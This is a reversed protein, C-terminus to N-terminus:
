GEALISVGMSSGTDRARRVAEARSKPFPDMGSDWIPSADYAPATDPLESYDVLWDIAAEPTMAAIREIEEPTAGFGGRELLHAATQYNWEDAIISSLDDVWEKSETSNFQQSVLVTGPLFWFGAVLAVSFSLASISRRYKYSLFNIRPM